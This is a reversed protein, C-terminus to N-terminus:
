LVQLYTARTTTPYVLFSLSPFFCLYLCVSQCVSVSLRRDLELDADLCQSAHKRFPRFTHQEGPQLTSLPFFLFPFLPFSVPLSLCVSLCVSVSLREAGPRCRSSPHKEFSSFTRQDSALNLCPFFSLSHSFVLFLFFCLCVSLSISMQRALQRYNLTYTSTTIYRCPMIILYQYLVIKSKNYKSYKLM